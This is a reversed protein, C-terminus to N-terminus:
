GLCTDFNGLLGELVGIESGGGGFDGITDFDAHLVNEAAGTLLYFNHVKITEQLSAAIGLVTLVVVIM